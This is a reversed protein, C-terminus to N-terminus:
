ANFYGASPHGKQGELKQPHQTFMDEWLRNSKELHHADTVYTNTSAHISGSVFECVSMSPGSSARSQLESSSSTTWQEGADNCLQSLQRFAIKTCCMVNIWLALREYFGMKDQFSNAQLFDPLTVTLERLGVAV